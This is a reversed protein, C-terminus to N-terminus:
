SVGPQTRQLSVMSEFSRISQADDGKDKGSEKSLMQNDSRVLRSLDRCLPMDVKM